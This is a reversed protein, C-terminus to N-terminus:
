IHCITTLAYLYRDLSRRREEERDVKARSGDELIMDSM